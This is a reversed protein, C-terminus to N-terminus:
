RDLLTGCIDCYIDDEGKQELCMPCIASDKVETGCVTCFKADKPLVNGCGACKRQILNNKELYKNIRPDIKM